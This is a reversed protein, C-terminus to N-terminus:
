HNFETIGRQYGQDWEWMFESDGHDKIYEQRRIAIWSHLRGIRSNDFKDFSEIDEIAKKIGDEFREHEFKNGKGNWYNIHDSIISDIKSKDINISKKNRVPISGNNIQPVFGWEGGDGWQFQLTWFFWGWSARQNFLKVQQNGFNKVWQQRDGKTTRKWTQEDLVCSFEGIMFDAKDSPLNVTNQLNTIIQNADKSKDDDSFCRYIHTDIIVIKDLGTEQLWNAWQDPWWGDSIVIPLSSDLKNITTIAGQYYKKEDRGKEDFKAENVIQIGIINEYKQCLDKVVFPIVENIMVDVYKKTNFFKVKGNIEGSHSDTNAGGPLGHIDILIGVNYDSARQILRKLFDWPKAQSYINMLPQFPLNKVFRGNDVHWYGIPVRLATVTGVDVLWNWDIKDLYQDYHNSLRDITEGEDFKEILKTLYTLECDGGNENLKSDFIWPELVFLSGLNVGNNVRNRYITRKGLDISTPQQISNFSSQKNDHHRHFPLKQEIKTDIHTGEFKEKLKDVIGM